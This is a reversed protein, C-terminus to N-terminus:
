LLPKAYIIHVPAGKLIIRQRTSLHFISSLFVRSSGKDLSIPIFDTLFSCRSGLAAGAGTTQEMSKILITSGHNKWLFACVSVCFPAQDWFQTPFSTYLDDNSNCLLNHLIDRNFWQAALSYKYHSNLSIHKFIFFIAFVVQLYFIFDFSVPWCSHKIINLEIQCM